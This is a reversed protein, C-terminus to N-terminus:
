ENQFPRLRWVLIHSGCRAALPISPTLSRYVINGFRSCLAGSAWEKLTLKMTSLLLLVTGETGVISSGTFFFCFTSPPPPSSPFPCPMSVGICPTSSSSIPTFPVSTSSMLLEDTGGPM